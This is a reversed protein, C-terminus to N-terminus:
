SHRFAEIKQITAVVGAPTLGVGFPYTGFRTEILLNGEGFGLFEKKAEASFPGLMSASAPRERVAIIDECRLSFSSKPWETAGEKVLVLEDRFVVNRYIITLAILLFVAMVVSSFSLLLGPNRRLAVSLVFITCGALFLPNWRMQRPCVIHLFRDTDKM